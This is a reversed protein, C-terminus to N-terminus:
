RRTGMEGAAQELSARVGADLSQDSQVMTKLLTRTHMDRVEGLFEPRALGLSLKLATREMWGIQPQDTAADVLQSWVEESAKMSPMVVVWPAERRIAEPVGQAFELRRGYSGVSALRLLAEASTMIKQKLRPDQVSQGINQGAEKVLTSGAQQLQDDVVPASEGAGVVVIVGKAPLRGASQQFKSALRNAMAAADGAAGSGDSYVFASGADRFDRGDWTAPWGKPLNSPACGGLGALGAAVLGVLLVLLIRPWVCEFAIMKM